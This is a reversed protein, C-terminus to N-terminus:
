FAYDLEGNYVIFHPKGLYELYNRMHESGRSGAWIFGIGADAYDGMQRNRANGARKGLNEWDAPFRAIPIGRDYAWKGGLTDAGKAMGCVVETVNYGSKTVAADILHYASFPMHRSGFIIVKM